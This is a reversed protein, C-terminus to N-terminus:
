RLCALKLHRIGRADVTYPPTCGAAAHTVAGHAAFKGPTTTLAVKVSAAPVPPALVTDANAGAGPDSLANVPVSTALTAAPGATGLAVAASAAPAERAPFVRWLLLGAIAAAALSGWQVLRARKRRVAPEAGPWTRTMSIQSRDAGEAARPELVASRTVAQSGESDAVSALLRRVSPREEGPRTSPTSGNEIGAILLSDRALQEAVVTQMWRGVASSSAITLSAEIADAM